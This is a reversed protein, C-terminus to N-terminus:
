VGLQQKLIEARYSLAKGGFGMNPDILSICLEAHKLDNQRALEGKIGELARSLDCMYGTIHQVDNQYTGVAEALEEVAEALKDRSDKSM